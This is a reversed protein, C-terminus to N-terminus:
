HGPRVRADIEDEGPWTKIVVADERVPLVAADQEIGALGFRTGAMGGIGGGAMTINM